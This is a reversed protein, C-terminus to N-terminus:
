RSSGSDLEARLMMRIVDRMTYKPRWGLIKAAKSPNGKSYAIDSPRMLLDDHEIHARWDLGLEEFSAEVFVQL